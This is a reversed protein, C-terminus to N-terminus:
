CCEDYLCLCDRRWCACGFVCCYLSCCGVGCVVGGASIHVVVGGVHHVAVVVVVIRTAVVAVVTIDVVDVVFMYGHVVGCCVCVGVVGTITAAVGVYDVGFVVDVGVVCIVVDDVDRMIVDNGVVGFVVIM